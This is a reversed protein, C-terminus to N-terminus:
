GRRRGSSDDGSTRLYAAELGSAIGFGCLGLAIAALMLTGLPQAVLTRLTGDLGHAQHPDADVASRVLLSGALVLLAARAVQGPMEVARVFSRVGGPMDEVHLRNEFRATVAWVVLGVGCAVLMAGVLALLPRGLTMGMISGAAGQTRSEESQQSRSTLVSLCSVALVLYAGGVVVFWARKGAGRGGHQHHLGGAAEAWRWVAHGAFAAACLAVLIAGPASAALVTVAGRRDTESHARGALAAAILAALTLWLVGRAWFGARGLADIVPHAAVRHAARRERSAAGRVRHSVTM